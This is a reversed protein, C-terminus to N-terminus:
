SPYKRAYVAEFLGTLHDLGNLFPEEYIFLGEDQQEIM